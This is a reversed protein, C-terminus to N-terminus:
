RSLYTVNQKELEKILPLSYILDGLHGSHLFNLENKQDIDQSIQNIKDKINNNYFLINEDIKKKYKLDEYKNKDFIKLFFNKIM